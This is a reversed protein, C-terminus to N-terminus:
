ISRGNNQEKEEDYLKVMFAKIKEIQEPTLRDIVIQGPNDWNIFM